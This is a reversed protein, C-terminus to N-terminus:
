NIRVPCFNLTVHPKIRVLCFNLTVHRATDEAALKPLEGTASRPVAAGKSHSTSRPPIRVDCVACAVHM